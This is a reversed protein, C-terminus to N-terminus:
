LEDKVSATASQASASATSLKEGVKDTAYSANKVAKDKACSQYGTLMELVAAIKEEAAGVGGSLKDKIAYLLKELRSNPTHPWMLRVDHLLDERSTSCSGSKCTVGNDRLYARLRADPWSLYPAARCSYDHYKKDMLNVLENRKVKASEATTAAPLYGHESLWERMENDTWAAWATDRATVYNDSVLRTLKDRKLNVTDKDKIINHEVLWAKLEKDSWNSYVKDEVDYYYSQMYAVLDDRKKAFDSKIYGRDVLWQHLYSDSWAKWVPTTTSAYADRMKALLEDRTAQQKSKIVGKGEL